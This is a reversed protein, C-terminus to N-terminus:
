SLCRKSIKNAHLVELGIEANTFMELVSNLFEFKYCGVALLDLHGLDLLPPCDFTQEYFSCHSCFPLSSVASIDIIVAANATVVTVLM